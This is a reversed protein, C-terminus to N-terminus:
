EFSCWGKVGLLKEGYQVHRAHGIVNDARVMTHQSHERPQLQNHLNLKIIIDLNSPITNM